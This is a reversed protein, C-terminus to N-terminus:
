GQRQSALFPRGDPTQFTSPSQIQAAAPAAVPEPTESILLRCGSFHLLACCNALNDFKHNNRRERFFTLKEGKGEIFKLQQYEATLHLVLEQRVEAPEEAFALVGRWAEPAPEAGDEGAAPLAMHLRAHAFAKWYDANFIVLWQNETGRGTFVQTYHLHYEEGPYIDDREGPRSYTELNQGEGRGFSVRWRAYTETTAPDMRNSESVFLYAVYAEGKQKKGGQWGGDVWINDPVVPAEGGVKVFGQMMRARFERMAKLLAEEM